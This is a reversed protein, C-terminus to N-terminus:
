VHSKNNLTKHTEHLFRKEFSFFFMFLTSRYISFSSKRHVPSETDHISLVSIKLCVKKDGSMLRLPSYFHTRGDM